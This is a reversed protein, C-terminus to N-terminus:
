IADVADDRHWVAEVGEVRDDSLGVRKTLSCSTKAVTDNLM